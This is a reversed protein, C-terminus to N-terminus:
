GVFPLCKLATVGVLTMGGGLLGLKTLSGLKEEDEDEYDDEDQEYSAHGFNADREEHSIKWSALLCICVSFLVVIGVPFKYITSM